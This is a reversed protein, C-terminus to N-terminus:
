ADTLSPKGQDVQAKTLSTIGFMKKNRELRFPLNVTLYLYAKLTLTLNREHLIKSLEQILQEDFTSDEQSESASNSM